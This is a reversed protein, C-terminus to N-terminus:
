VFVFKRGRERRGPKDTPIFFVSTELVDERHTFVELSQTCKRSLFWSKSRKALSPRYKLASNYCNVLNKDFYGSKYQTRSHFAGLPELKEQWAGASDTTGGRGLQTYVRLLVAHLSVKDAAAAERFIAMIDHRPEGMPQLAHRPALGLGWILRTAKVVVWFIRLRATSQPILYHQLSLTLAPANHSSTNNKFIQNGAKSDTAPCGANM